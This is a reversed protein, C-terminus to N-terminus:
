RKMPKGRLRRRRKQYGKLHIKRQPRLVDGGDEAVREQDDEDGAMDFEVFTPQEDQQKLYVLTQDPDGEPVVIAKM